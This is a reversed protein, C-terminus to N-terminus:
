KKKKKTGVSSKGAGMPNGCSPCNKHAWSHILILAAAVIVVWRSTGSNVISVPWIAFVLVVLSLITNAWRCNCGM